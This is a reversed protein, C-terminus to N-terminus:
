RVTYLGPRLVVSNEIHVKFPTLLAVLGASDAPHPIQGYPLVGMGFVTSQRPAGVVTRKDYGRPVKPAPYKGLLRTTEVAGVMMVKYLLHHFAM